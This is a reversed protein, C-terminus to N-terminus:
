LMKQFVVTRQKIFGEKYQTQNHVHFTTVKHWSNFYHSFEELIEM